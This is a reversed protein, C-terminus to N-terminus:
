IAVHSSQVFLRAEVFADILEREPSNPKAFTEDLIIERSAIGRQESYVTLKRILQPLADQAPASLKSFVENARTEIAGTLTGLHEYTAHTLKTKDQPSELTLQYLQELVVSLLPLAATPNSQHQMDKILRTALSGKEPHDEYHFGAMQMPKKIMYEIAGHKLEPITWWYGELWARLAEQQQLQPFFDNRMGLLIWHGRQNFEILTAIFTTLLPQEDLSSSDALTFIRELQDIIWLYQVNSDVNSVQTLHESLESATQLSPHLVQWHLHTNPTKKAIATELAPIVGAQLLSSKGSGSPGLILLRKAADPQNLFRTAIDDAEAQRGFFIRRDEYTYANLGCFPKITALPIGLDVLAEHVRSVPKLAIGKDQIQQRLEPPIDTDNDNASPYFIKSGESLVTLAAELKAPLGAILYVGGYERVVGTAAIDPYSQKHIRTVFGLACALGASQGWIYNNTGTLEYDVVLNKQIKNDQALLEEQWFINCICITATRASKEFEAGLSRPRVTTKIYEVDPPDSFTPEATLPLAKGKKGAEDILELVWTKM